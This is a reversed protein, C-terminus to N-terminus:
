DARAAWSRYDLKLLASIPEMGSSERNQDRVQTGLLFSVKMLGM